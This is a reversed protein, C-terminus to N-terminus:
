LVKLKSFETIKFENTFKLTLVCKQIWIDEIYRKKHICCDFIMIMEESLLIKYNVLTVPGTFISWRLVFVVSKTQKQEIM